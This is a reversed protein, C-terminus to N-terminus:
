GQWIIWVVVGVIMWSAALCALLRRSGTWHNDREHM